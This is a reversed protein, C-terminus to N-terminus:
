VVMRAKERALGKVQAVVNEYNCFALLKQNKVHKCVKSYYWDGKKV